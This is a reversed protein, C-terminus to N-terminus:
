GSRDFWREALCLAVRDEAAPPGHHHTSTGSVQAVDSAIGREFEANRLLAWALAIILLITGALVWGLPSGATM